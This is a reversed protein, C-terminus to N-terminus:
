AAGLAAARRRGATLISCRIGLRRATILYLSVTEVILSTTTAAAAGALGFLPVLQFVLCVNLAFTGTYVLACIRQQGAM